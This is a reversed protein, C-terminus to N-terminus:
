LYYNCTNLCSALKPDVERIPTPSLLPIRTKNTSGSAQRSSAKSLAENARNVKSPVVPQTPKTAPTVPKELPKSPLTKPESQCLQTSRNIPKNPLTMIPKVVSPEPIVPTSTVISRIQKTHKPVVQPNENPKAPKAIPKTPMIPKVPKTSNIPKDSLVPPKTVPPQPIAKNPKTPPVALPDVLPCVQPMSTSCQETAALEPRLAKAIKLLCLTFDDPINASIFTTNVSPEAVSESITPDIAPETETESYSYEEYCDQLVEVMEPNM